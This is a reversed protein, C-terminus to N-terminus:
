GTHLEVLDQDQLVHDRGVSQGDHLGSGWVKAFKLKDALDKHVREALAEVTSGIPMTFPSTRDAPKGPAKTYLRMVGLLGYVAQRLPPLTAPDDLEVKLIPIAPPNMERYLALREDVDPDSAHTVVLLSSIQVKSFDDDVFGSGTGFWTSRQQFQQLVTLTQEPADDSSGDFCVLVADATRVINPLYTEFASDTVPPTDVLQVSVDEWTMMGPLPERTTFPYDAVEPQANTIEKLLRSKGSNPGGVIAVTGAGQRPFRYSKVKKPTSKEIQLTERAEKLRTKLDAQVKESAKHKPLLVLMRELCDVQEATTQARRFELEVRFYQPPANVAM